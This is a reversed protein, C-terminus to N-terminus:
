DDKNEGSEFHRHRLPRLQFTSPEIGARCASIDKLLVSTRLNSGSRTMMLRKERQLEKGRKEDDIGRKARNRERREGM